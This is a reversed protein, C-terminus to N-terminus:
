EVARTPSGAYIRDPELADRKMVIGQPAVFARDGIDAGYFVVTHSGVSASRGVRVKDIKLIRDEFTHAQLDCSVTSDDEFHLMDPDVVQAFGPGLVVRRGIRMGMLRLVANILLTGELQALVGRAWQNWAVYFFDWRSCWCSWLPHQGSRVRGLLLWKLVVTAGVLVGAAALTVAPALVFHSFAGGVRRSGLFLGAYWLYAILLPVVPLGLRLSEWFFRTAYRLADPDHTLSRDATVVERRPLEMPPVGFWTSDTRAVDADAVTAVGIFLDAPWAHGAPVVAHNGLFTSRGLSTDAITVTGRHRWPACFYIGDAFFSEDGISVTEPLVDIITSVECNRGIRMGALRLWWPWFLGGSLWRSAADVIGTRTWIRISEASWQSVVGPSIPRTLRMVVGQTVLRAAVVVFAGAIVIVVGRASVAPHELWALVRSDLDPVLAAAAIMGLVIPIWSALTAATRGGIALLTYGVPGIERGRTVDPAPPAEGTRTAPVGTWREHDGVSQGAPLWSLPALFGGRGVASGPSMGARVDLTADAGIHIPGIVVHGDEREVLRAGSDQALTAGDGISLLDWGGRQLDVGRHIYVRKGIQAGLCRLVFPLVPTGEIWRWPISQATSVVIWHRTYFGSWVPARTPTYRGVALRKVLLTLPVSVLLRALTALVIVVPMAAVVGVLGVNSLAWPLIEFAAFALVAGVAVVRLALWVSQITTSLVPRGARQPGGARPPLTSLATSKRARMRAALAAVTRAEYLDRVTATAGGAVGADRLECVAAVAALSDGGLDLFFDDDVSLPGDHHLSAAFAAAVAREDDSRAGVVAERGNGNEPPLDPLSKRDLKGGVTTPLDATVGFRNPVMYEPLVRRLATKLAATDVPGLPGNPVIHAALVQRAGSGQVRCAAARIGPLAALHAEIATLEVRYGRLKVQGDIRGLYELASHGNRRVLDGTRYIRGHVPHVPFKTATVAERGRYGRALGPGALCLEGPEGDPLEELADDLVFARHGRVPWGITVPEGPRVRGRVVTVSCETPGYGNELWLGESWLDALDAPLAEGGVYVLKLDPLEARPHSCGMSRLLTPPPCFVTIRERRLWPVLDPGLRVTDDDLPVLTAGAAFALWSEELSSDYAPSSCQAVRENPTLRFYELDSAVLNGIGRHEIMVGKPEGTTGSTYIVYALNSLDGDRGNLSRVPPPLGRPVVVPRPRAGIATLRAQGEESTIVAAPDADDLIRRVHEDPFVPDLCTFAGGVKMVGIQAAYLAPTERGLFVAVLGEPAVLSELSEAVADAQHRLAAYTIQQRDRRGRGPPVDVAVRNPCRGAVEDFLRHLLPIGDPPM